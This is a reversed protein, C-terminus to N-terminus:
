IIERKEVLCIPHYSEKAKILGEEGAADERNVYKVEPYNKELNLKNIAVYNGRVSASAHEYHILATDDRLLESITFATIEDNAISLVGGSLSPFMKKYDNFNELLKLLKSSGYQFSKNEASKHIEAWEKFKLACKKALNDDITQFAYDPNERIFANFHNRKSHLKKGSLTRLKEADYLYDGWKKESTLKYNEKGLVSKIAQEKDGKGVPHRFIFNGNYEYRICLCDHVIAYHTNGWDAWTCLTLPSMESAVENFNCIELEGLLYEKISDVKSFDLKEWNM